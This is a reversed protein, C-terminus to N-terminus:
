IQHKTWGVHGFLTSFPLEKEKKKGGNTPNRKGIRILSHQFSKDIIKDRKYHKLLILPYIKQLLIQEKTKSPLLSFSLTSSSSCNLMIVILILLCGYMSTLFIHLGRINIYMAEFIFYESETVNLVRNSFWVKWVKINNM